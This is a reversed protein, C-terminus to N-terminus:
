DDFIAFYASNSGVKAFADNAVSQEPTCPVRGAVVVHHQLLVSNGHLFFTKCHSDANFVRLFEYVFNLIFFVTM